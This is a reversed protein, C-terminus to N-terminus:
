ALTVKAKKKPAEAVPEPDPAPESRPKVEAQILGLLAVIVEDLRARPDPADAVKALIHGHCFLPACYCGLQKSRIQELQELAEPREDRLYVAYRLLAVLRELQTGGKRIAWRTNWPTEKAPDKQRYIYVYGKPKIDVANINFVTTAM